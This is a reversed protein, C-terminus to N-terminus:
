VCITLTRGRHGRWSPFPRRARRPPSQRATPPALVRLVSYGSAFTPSRIMLLRGRGSGL